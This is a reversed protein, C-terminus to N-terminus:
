GEEGTIFQRYLNPFSNFVLYSKGAEGRFIPLIGDGAWVTSGDYYLSHHLGLVTNGM